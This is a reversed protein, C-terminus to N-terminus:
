TAFCGRRVVNTFGDNGDLRIFPTQDLVLAATSVDVANVLDVRSRGGGASRDGSHAPFVSERTNEVRPLESLDARPRKKRCSKTTNKKQCDFRFM